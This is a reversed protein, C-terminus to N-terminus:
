LTPGLEGLRVQTAGAQRITGDGNLGVDFTIGGIRRKGLVGIPVGDIVVEKPIDLYVDAGAQNIWYITGGQILEGEEGDRPRPNELSFTLGAPIPSSTLEPQIPWIRQRTVKGDLWCWRGKLQAYALSDIVNRPDNTGLIRGYTVAGYEGTVTFDRCQEGAPPACTWGYPNGPIGIPITSVKAVTVIAGPEITGLAGSHGTGDEKVVGGGTGVSVTQWYSGYSFNVATGWSGPYWNNATVYFNLISGPWRPDPRDMQILYCGPDYPSNAGGFQLSVQTQTDVTFQRPGAARAPTAVVMGALLVALLTLVVTRTPRSLPMQM